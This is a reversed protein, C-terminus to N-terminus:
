PVVEQQFRYQRPAVGTHRTFSRTFYAPDVFGLTYAIEAV